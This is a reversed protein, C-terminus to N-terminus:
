KHYKTNANISFARYIQELLMVRALQHPFTMESMSLRLDARAKVEDSLGYSGGIVFAISSRGSLAIQQLKGALGASPLQKGEICMAVVFQSGLKALISKGETEIVRNIEAEKPSDGIRNESLEVVNLRCFPRLRKSYEACADRWYGEKCKGICIVDVTLM